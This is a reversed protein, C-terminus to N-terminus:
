LADDLLVERQGRPTVVHVGLLRVQHDACVRRAARFWRGDAPTLTAPGPRMLAILVAGGPGVSMSHAIACLAYSCEAPSVDLPVDGVHCHFLVQNRHDCLVFRVGNSDFGEPELDHRLHREIAGPSNLFVKKEAM